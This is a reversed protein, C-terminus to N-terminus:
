LSSLIQDISTKCHKLNDNWAERLPEKFGEAVDHATTTVLERKMRAYNNSQALHRVYTNLAEIYAPKAKRVFLPNALSNLAGDLRFENLVVGGPIPALKEFSRDLADKNAKAESRISNAIAQYVRSDNRDSRYNDLILALFVGFATSIFTVLAELPNM